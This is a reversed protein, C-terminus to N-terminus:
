LTSCERQYLMTKDLNGSVRQPHLADYLNVATDPNSLPEGWHVLHPLNNERSVLVVSIGGNEMYITHLPSGMVSRSDYTKVM